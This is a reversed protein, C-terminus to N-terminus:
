APKNIVWAVVYEIGDIFTRNMYYESNFVDYGAIAIAEVLTELMERKVQKINRAEGYLEGVGTGMSRYDDIKISVTQFANPEIEGWGLHDINEVKYNEVDPDFELTLKM